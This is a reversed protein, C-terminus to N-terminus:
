DRAFPLQGAPAVALGARGGPARLAADCLAYGWNILRRQLSAEFANLRTPVHDLAETDASSALLPHDAGYRDIDTSVGWYAGRRRGSEFGEILHRKRLARTQDILIDRVRGLQRLPDDPPNQEIEFPAGADSVLVIDPASATDGVLRQLGMNDYIGGDALEIRERLIRLLERDAVVLRRGDAAPPPETWDADRTELVIPSFLPPFASSAAVAFALPLQLGRAEGLRYDAVSQPTMRVSRGTQLNTAYFLFVPAGEGPGPLEDLRMRGFLRDRYAAALYDGASRFPNLLGKVGAAVDIGEACFRQVPEAVAEVFNSARGEAFRLERWHAALVGSLISGGSVSTVIDLRGLLGADNLRWLSGLSFLTARYGGGSLALGVRMGNVSM